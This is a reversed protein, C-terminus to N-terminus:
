PRGAAVADLLSSPRRIDIPIHLRDAIDECSILGCIQHFPMDVVLCWRQGDRKLVRVVDGVSAQELQCFPLCKVGSRPTMLDAVVVDQRRTEKGLRLLINQEDLHRPTVIGVLEERRDVVLKVRAHERRFAVGADVAPTSSEILSPPHIRFDNVVSLAPSYSCIDTRERPQVLHDIADISMLNLAKM